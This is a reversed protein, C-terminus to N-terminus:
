LEAVAGVADVTLPFLTIRPTDRLGLEAPWSEVTATDGGLRLRIGRPDLRLGHGTAKVLAEKAVWTGGILEDAETPTLDAIAALEDPHLLVDAVAHASLAARSEVDIGVPGESRAAAAEAGVTRAFSVFCPCPSGDVFEVFPQGHQTSSCEACRRSSVLDRVDVSMARAAALIILPSPAGTHGTHTLTDILVTTSGVVLERM